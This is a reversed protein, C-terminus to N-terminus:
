DLVRLTIPDGDGVGIAARISEGAIVEVQDAPYGPVGPVLIAGEITDNVVVRYCVAACSSGAPEEIPIGPSQKLAVWSELAAADTLRVNFTGPHTRIGIKQLLREQVWALQTFQRAEGLGSATVGTLIM